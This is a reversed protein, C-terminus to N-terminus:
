ADKKEERMNLNLVYRNFVVTYQAIESQAARSNSNGNDLVASRTANWIERFSLEEPTLDSIDKGHGWLYGFSGEFAALAGIITTEFKKKINGSLKKKSNERYAKNELEKM